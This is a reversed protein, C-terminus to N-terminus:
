PYSMLLVPLLAFVSLHSYILSLLKWLGFSLDVSHFLLSACIIYPM